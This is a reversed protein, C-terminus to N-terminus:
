FPRGSAYRSMARSLEIVDVAPPESLRAERGPLRAPVCRLREPLHSPWDRFAAASGGAYPLCFLLVEGAATADEGSFWRDDTSTAGVVRVEEGEGLQHRGVRRVARVTRRVDDDARM